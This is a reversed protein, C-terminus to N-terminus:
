VKERSVEIAGDAAVEVLWGRPGRAFRAVFPSAGGLPDLDIVVVEEDEELPARAGTIAEYNPYTENEATITLRTNQDLRQGTMFDPLGQGSWEGGRYTQFRYEGAAYELRYRQGTFLSHEFAAAVKAAFREADRKDSPRSPPANIVVISAAFALITMVVLLEILTVGRQLRLTTLLRQNRGM